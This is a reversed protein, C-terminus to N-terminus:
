ASRARGQPGGWPHCPAGAPAFGATVPRERSGCCRWGPRRAQWPTGACILFVADVEAGVAARFMALADAETIHAEDEGDRLQTHFAFEGKGDVAVMFARRDRNFTVNMWAPRHPVLDYFRPASLYIAYMRGGFFDRVVGTEGTWGIGLRNRVYSRAGDAAM